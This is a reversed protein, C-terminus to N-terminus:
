RRFRSGTVRHLVDHRDLAKGLRHLHGLDRDLVGVGRRLLRNGDLAGEYGLGRLREVDREYLDVGRRLLRSGDLAGEYGLGRLREVDRE